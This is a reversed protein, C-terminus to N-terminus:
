GRTRARVFFAIVVTEGRFDSLKVPSALRGYRTAGPLSFDPAMQGVAPPRTVSDPAQAAGAAAVGALALAAYLATRPSM